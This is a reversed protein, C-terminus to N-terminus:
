NKNKEICDKSHQSVNKKSLKLDKEIVSNDVSKVTRGSWSFSCVGPIVPCCLISVGGYCMLNWRKNDKSIRTQVAGKKNNKKSNKKISNTIVVNWKKSIIHLLPTISVTNIQVASTVLFVLSTLCKKQVKTIFSYAGGSSAGKRDLVRWFDQWYIFVCLYSTGCTARCSYWASCSCFM